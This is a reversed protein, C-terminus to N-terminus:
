NRGKKIRDRQRDIEKSNKRKRENKLETERV